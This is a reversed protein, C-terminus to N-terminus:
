PSLFLYAIGEPSHDRLFSSLALSRGEGDAVDALPRLELTPGPRTERRVLTPEAEDLKWGKAALVAQLGRMPPEAAWEDDVLLVIGDCM